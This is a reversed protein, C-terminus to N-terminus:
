RRGADQPAHRTVVDLLAGIKFPKPLFELFERQIQEMDTTGLYGSIAVARVDPDRRRMHRLTQPGTMEPMVVDIVALAVEDAHQEFHAIAEPGGAFERVEYGASQLVARALSRIAPEDDVVLIIPKDPMTASLPAM